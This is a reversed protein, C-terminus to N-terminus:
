KLWEPMKGAKWAPIDVPGRVVPIYTWVTYERAIVAMFEEAAQMMAPTPETYDDDPNGYASDLRELVEDLVNEAWEHTDVEKQVWGVLELETVAAQQAASCAEEVVEIAEEVAVDFTEHSTDVGTCTWFDALALPKVKL